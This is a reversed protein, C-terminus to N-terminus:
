ADEEHRRNNNEYDQILTSTMMQQLNDRRTLLAEQFLRNTDEALGVVDFGNTKSFKVEVRTSHKFLDLLENINKIEDRLRNVRLYAQMTICAKEETSQNHSLLKLLKRM